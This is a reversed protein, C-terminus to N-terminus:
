SFTFYLLIMRFMHLLFAGLTFIGVAIWAFLFLVEILDMQLNSSILVPLLIIQIFNIYFVIKDPSEFM